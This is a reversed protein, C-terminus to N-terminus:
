AVFGRPRQATAPEKWDVYDRFNYFLPGGTKVYRPETGEAAVKRAYNMIATELDTGLRDLAAEAAAPTDAGGIVRRVEKDFHKRAEKRGEKRPVLAWCKSFITDCKKHSMTHSSTVRHSPAHGDRETYTKTTNTLTSTLSSTSERERQSRKRERADARVDNDNTDATRYQEKNVVFWGWSRVPDIPVIRRGEHEPSRSGADPSALVVLARQVTDLDLNLRRALSEPTLDLRGQRDSLVIMGIFALRTMPDTENVSSDFFQAHIKGYSM